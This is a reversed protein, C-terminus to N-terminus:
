GQCSGCVGTLEVARHDVAFGLRQGLQDTAAAVREDETEVVTGCQRCILFQGAHPHDPHDCAVYARTTDLRHALGYKILFDLGRYVSAPTAAAHTARCRDLIEYATLPRTAGRLLDLLTRRGQTMRGGQDRCRRETDALLAADRDPM